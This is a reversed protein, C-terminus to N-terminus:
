KTVKDVRVDVEEVWQPLEWSRLKGRCAARLAKPTVTEHADPAVACSVGLEGDANLSARASVVLATSEIVTEVHGLHVKDGGKLTVIRKLRGTIHMLGDDDIEVSDGTAMPQSLDWSSVQGDHLYGVASTESRVMLERVVSGGINREEGLSMEVGQLPHALSSSAQATTFPDGSSVRPGAETLGYTPYVERGQGVMEHLSSDSARDGGVTLHNLEQPLVARASVIQSLMHPTMATAQIGHEHLREVYLTPNFLTPSMHIHSGLALSGLVGAVFASSFHVSQSLYYNMGPESRNVSHWHRLGNEFCRDRELVIAKPAGTSGSTALVMQPVRTVAPTPTSAARGLMLGSARQTWVLEPLARAVAPTTLAGAPLIQRALTRYNETALTSSLLVPHCGAEWASLVNLITDVRNGTAILVYGDHCERWLMAKAAIEALLDDRTLTVHTDRYIETIAASPHIWDSLDSRAFPPANM